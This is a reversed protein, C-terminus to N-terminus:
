SNKETVQEEKEIDQALKERCETVHVQFGEIRRWATRINKANCNMEQNDETFFKKWDKVAAVAIAEAVEGTSATITTEPKSGAEIESYRMEQKSNSNMITSVETATLHVILTEAGDPDDKVPFWREKSKKVRM